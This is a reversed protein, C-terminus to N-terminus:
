KPNIYDTLVLLYKPETKDPFLSARLQVEYALRWGPGLMMNLHIVQFLVSSLFTFTVFIKFAGADGQLKKAIECTCM